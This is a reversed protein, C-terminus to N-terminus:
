VHFNIIKPKINNIYLFILKQTLEYKALYFEYKALYFEYKALYFEYEFARLGTEM